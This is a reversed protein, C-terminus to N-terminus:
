LSNTKMVVARVLNETRVTAVMFFATKQSTVGYLPYFNVLMKSSSVAEM